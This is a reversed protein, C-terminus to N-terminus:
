EFIKKLINNKNDRINNGFKSLYYIPIFVISLCFIIPWLMSIGLLILTCFISYGIDRSFDISPYKYNFKIISCFVILGIFMIVDGIMWIISIASEM